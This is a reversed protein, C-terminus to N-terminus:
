FVCHWELSLGNSSVKVTPAQRTPNTGSTFILAAGGILTLGGVIATGITWSDLAQVRVAKRTAEYQMARYNSDTVPTTALADHLARWDAYAHSSALALVGATGLVAAGAGVIGYGIVRQRRSQRQLESAYEPLPVLSVALQKSEGQRLYVDTTWTKFGFRQVEVRHKGFPLLTENTPAGDVLLRTGQESATVHLTSANGGLPRETRMACDITTSSGSAWALDVPLYGPRRFSVRHPGAALTLPENIPTVGVTSEDVSVMVDPIPCSVHVSPGSAEVAVVPDLQVQVPTTETAAISFSRTLPRFGPATVVMGHAGVVLRLQSKGSEAPKGDIEIKADAPVGSLELKGIRKGCQAILRDVEVRRKSDILAGGENLYRTLTDYADVARGLVLYTRGLNYLVSYNPSAEYAAEFESAAADVESAQAHVLGRQFHEAASAESAPQANAHRAVGFILLQATALTKKLSNM